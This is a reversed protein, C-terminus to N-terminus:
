NRGGLGGGGYRFANIFLYSNRSPSASTSISILHPTSPFIFIHLGGSKSKVPVFPLSYNKIIDVYKKESYDKYNAPDVDICAWQCKDEIDPRLGIRTQGELHQKWIESTVPEHVTIYKAQKKGREDDEGTLSSKLYQTSDCTFLELLQKDM